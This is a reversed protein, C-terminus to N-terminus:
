TNHPQPVSMICTGVIPPCLPRGVKRRTNSRQIAPQYGTKGRDAGHVALRGAEGEEEGEGEKEVVVTKTRTKLYLPGMTSLAGSSEPTSPGVAVAPAGAANPVDVYGWKAKKLVCPPIMLSLLSSSSSMMRLGVRGRGVACVVRWRRGIM